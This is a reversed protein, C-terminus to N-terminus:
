RNSLLSDFDRSWTVLTVWNIHLDPTPTMERFSDRKYMHYGQFEENDTDGQILDRLENDVFMLDAKSDSSDEHGDREEPEIDEWLVNDETSDM